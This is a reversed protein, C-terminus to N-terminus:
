VLLPYWTLGSGGSYRVTRGYKLVNFSFGKYYLFNLVIQNNLLLIENDGIVYLM